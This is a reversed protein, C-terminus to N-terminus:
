PKRKSLWIVNNKIRNPILGVVGQEAYRALMMKIIFEAWRKKLTILTPISLLLAILLLIIGRDKGLYKSVRLKNLEMLYILSFKDRASYHVVLTKPAPSNRILAVHKDLVDLKNYGQQKIMRFEEQLLIPNDSMKEGIYGATGGSMLPHKHQTLATAFLTEDAVEVQNSLQRLGIEHRRKYLDRVATFVVKSQQSQKFYILGGITHPFSEIGCKDLYVDLNHISFNHNKGSDKSNAKGKSKYTSKAFKNSGQQQIVLDGEAKTYLEWLISPQCYLLCDAEIFITEAFPSYIDLFLKHATGQIEEGDYERMPRIVQSAMQLLEADDSDTIIACPYNPHKASSDGYQNISNILGKVMSEYHDARRYRKAGDVLTLFGRSDKNM